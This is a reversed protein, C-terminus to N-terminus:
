GHSRHEREEEEEQADWVGAVWVGASSFTILILHEPGFVHGLAETYRTARLRRCLATRALDTGRDPADGAHPPGGAQLGWLRHCRSNERSPRRLFWEHLWTTM